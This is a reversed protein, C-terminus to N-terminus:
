RAGTLSHGDPWHRQTVGRLPGTDAARQGRAEAVFSPSVLSKARGAVGAQARGDPKGINNGVRKSTGKSEEEKWEM